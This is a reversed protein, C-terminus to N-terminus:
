ESKEELFSYIDKVFEDIFDGKLVKVKEGKKFLFLVLPFLLRPFHVPQPLILSVQQPLLLFLFLPLPLSGAETFADAQHSNLISRASERQSPALTRM